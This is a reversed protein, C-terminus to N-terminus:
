AHTVAEEGRTAADQNMYAAIRCAGNGGGIRRAAARHFIGPRSALALGNDSHRGGIFVPMRPMWVALAATSWAFCASSRAIGDPALDAGLATLEDAIEFFDIRTSNSELARQASQWGSATLLVGTGTFLFRTAGIAQLIDVLGYLAYDVNDVFFLSCPADTAAALSRFLTVTNSRHPGREAVFVLGPPDALDRIRRLADDFLLHADSRDAPVAFVMARAAKAKAFAEPPRLGAAIERRVTAAFEPFFAEHQLAPYFGLADDLSASHGLRRLANPEIPHNTSTGDTFVVKLLPDILEETPLRGRFLAVFGAQSLLNACHPFASGLDAREKFYTSVPDAHLVTNGFRLIFREVQKLPSLAWGEVMCGFHPLVLAQDVHVHIPFGATRATEPIWNQVSSLMRQLATTRSGYCFPRVQEFQELAAKTDVIRLPKVGRLHFRMGEGFFLFIDTGTSAPQWDARIVGFVACADAPLDPRDYCTLMVSAAVKRRDVLIAPFELPQGKHLWGSVWLLGSPDAAIAEIYGQLNESLPRVPTQLAAEADRLLADLQLSPDRESSVQVDREPLVPRTPESLTAAM